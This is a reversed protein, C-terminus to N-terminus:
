SKLQAAVTTRKPQSRFVNINVALIGVAVLATGLLENWPPVSLNLISGFVTTLVPVMFLYSSFESANMRSLVRFYILYALASALLVNYALYGWFAPAPDVFVSGLILFPAIFLAGMLNQVGTVVYSNLQTSWKKFLLISIAWSLSASLEFLDGLALKAASLSPLFVVVVGIFAAMVGLAKFRTLKEGLLPSFAVVLVPQTYVLTAAVSSNVTTLGQNLAVLFFSVNFLGIASLWGLDVVRLNKISSGSFMLVALGGLFARFLALTVPDVYALSGKIAFYNGGWISCMTFILLLDTKTVM